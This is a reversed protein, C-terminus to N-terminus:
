QVLPPQYLCLSLPVHVEGHAYEGASNGEKDQANWPVGQKLLYTVIDKHGQM